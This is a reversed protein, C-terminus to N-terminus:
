ALLWCLYTVLFSSWPESPCLGLVTPDCESCALRTPTTLPPRQRLPLGTPDQPWLSSLHSFAGRLSVPPM